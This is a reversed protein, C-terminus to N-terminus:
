ALPAPESPDFRLRLSRLGRYRELHFRLYEEVMRDLAALWLPSPAEERASAEGPAADRLLSAGSTRISTEAADSLESAERGQVMTRLRRLARPRIRLGSDASAACAPCLIGGEGPRFLWVEQTANDALPRGCHLCSELLPAYGLLAAVRLQFARFLEHLRARPAVRLVELARLSLEFIPPAPEDDLLIRDLFELLASAHLFRDAEAWLASGDRETWGTKLFQLDRGTRYYLVYSGLCCPELSAGFPSRTERAGKAMAGVKGLERTFLTVIRSTEGYRLSRLVLGRCEVIQSNM